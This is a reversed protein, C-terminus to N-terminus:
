RREATRRQMLRALAGVPDTDIQILSGGCRAVQTNLEALRSNQTESLGRRVRPSTTDVVVTQGTEPDTLAVLGAAPLEVDLRDRLAVCVVDHRACLRNLEETFPPAVFDSVVFTLAARRQHESLYRLAGAIDTTGGLPRAGLLAFLVRQVQTRARQPPIFEVVRDGFLLLGVADGTTRALHAILAAFELAKRANTRDAGFLTSPSLDVAVVVNLQREEDYSKVQVKGTRATAKWHINKIEDGPIYARLDAFTLGSGRFASRYRGVIDASM